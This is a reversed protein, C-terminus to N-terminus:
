QFIPVPIHPYPNISYQTGFLDHTLVLQSIAAQPKPESVSSALGARGAHAGPRPTLQTLTYQVQTHVPDPAM